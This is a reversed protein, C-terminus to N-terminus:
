LRSSGCARRGGGRWARAPRTAITPRGFTPLLVSSLARSPSGIAIMLWWGCVVRSGTRPTADGGLRGVRLVDEDVGGSQVLRARAQALQIFSPARSRRAVRVDEDESTSGGRPPLALLAGASRASATSSGLQRGRDSAILLTSRTLSLASRKGSMAANPSRQRASRPSRGAAARPPGVAVSAQELLHALEQGLLGQEELRVREGVLRHAEEDGLEDALLDERLCALLHGCPTATTTSRKSSLPFIGCM